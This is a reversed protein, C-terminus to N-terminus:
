RSRFFGLQRTSASVDCRREARSAREQLQDRQTESAELANCLASLQQRQSVQVQEADSAALQLDAIHAWLKQREDQVAALQSAMEALKHELEGHAMVTDDQLATQSAQRSM